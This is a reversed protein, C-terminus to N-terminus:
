SSVIQCTRWSIAKVALWQEHRAPPSVALSYRQLRNGTGHRFVHMHFVLRASRTLEVTSTM